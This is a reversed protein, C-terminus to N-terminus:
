EGNVHPISYDLDGSRGGEVDDGGVRGYAGDTGNDDSSESSETMGKGRRDEITFYTLILGLLAVGACGYFAVKSGMNGYKATPYRSM